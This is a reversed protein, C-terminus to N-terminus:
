NTEALEQAKEEGGGGVRGQKKKSKYLLTDQEVTSLKSFLIINEARKAADAKSVEDVDMKEGGEGEGEGGGDEEEEGQGEGELDIVEGGLTMNGKDRWLKALAEKTESQCKSAMMIGKYVLAVTLDGKGWDEPKPKKMLLASFNDRKKIKVDEVKQDKAKLQMDENVQRMMLENRVNGNSLGSEIGDGGQISWIGGSTLKIGNLPRVDLSSAVGNAMREAAIKNSATSAAELRQLREFTTSGAKSVNLDAFTNKPPPAMSSSSSTASSQLSSSSSSATSSPSSSTKTALISPKKLLVRNLTSLGREDLAKMANKVVGFSAQCALTVLIVIDSKVIAKQNPPLNSTAKKQLLIRDWKSLATKFAGNLEKADGGQWEDTVNPIGLNFNWVNVGEEEDIYNLFELSVRSGHGDGWACPTRGCSTPAIDGPDAGLEDELKWGFYNCADVARKMGYVGSADIKGFSQALISPTIGGSASEVVFPKIRFKGVECVPGGHYVDDGDLLGFLDTGMRVEKSLPTGSLIIVVYLIPIGAATIFPITTFHCDTKSIKEQITGMGAPGVVKGGARKDDDSMNLNKGTEDFYVLFNKDAENNFRVRIDRDAPGSVEVQSLPPPPKYYPFPSTLTTYESYSCYFSSSASVGLNCRLVSKDIRDYLQVFSEYKRWEHRKGDFLQPYEFKLEEKRRKLFGKFWRTGFAKGDNSDNSQEVKNALIKRGLETEEVWSNVLVLIEDRNLPFGFSAFKLLVDTILDEIDGELEGVPGAHKVAAVNHSLRYSISQHKMTGLELGFKKEGAIIVDMNVVGGDEKKRRVIEQVIWNRAERKRDGLEKKARAGVSLSENSPRGGRMAKKAAIARMEDIELDDEDSGEGTAGNVLVEHAELANGMEVAMEDDGDGTAGGDEVVLVEAEEEGGGGDDEEEGGVKEVELMLAKPDLLLANEWKTVKYRFNREKLDPYHNPQAMYIMYQNGIHGQPLTGGQKRKEIAVNRSFVELFQERVSDVRDSVRERTKRKKVDLLVLAPVDSMDGIPPFLVAPVHPSDHM